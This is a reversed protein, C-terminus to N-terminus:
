AVHGADRDTVLVLEHQAIGANRPRQPLVIGIRPREGVRDAVADQGLGPRDGADRAIRRRRPVLHHDVLQVDAAETEIGARGVAAAVEVRHDALEVVDGIEADVDDLQQRGVLKGAVLRPAVVRGVNERDFARIATGVAQPAQDVRRMRAADGDDVVDDVVMEARGVEVEPLEVAPAGVPLAADIEVVVPAAIRRPAIGAGVVAAAFHALVDAVVRQAPQLLAAAVAQPEVGGSPDTVDVSAVVIRAGVQGVAPAQQLPDIALDAVALRPLDGDGLVHLVIRPQGTRDAAAARAEPRLPAGSSPARSM